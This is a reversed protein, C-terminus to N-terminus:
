SVCSIVLIHDSMFVVPLSFFFHQLALTYRIQRNRVYLFRLVLSLDCSSITLSDNKSPHCPCSTLLYNNPPHISLHLISLHLSLPQILNDFSIYWTSDCLIAPLQGNKSRFNGNWITWDLLYLFFLPWSHIKWASKWKPLLFALSLASPFICFLFIFFFWLLRIPDRCKPFHIAKILFLRILFEQRLVHGVIWLRYLFGFHMYSINLTVIVLSILMLVPPIVGFMKRLYYYMNRSPNLFVNEGM